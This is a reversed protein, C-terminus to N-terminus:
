GGILAASTFYRLLVQWTKEHAKNISCWIQWVGNVVRKAKFTSFLGGKKAFHYLYIECKQCGPSGVRGKQPHTGGPSDQGQTTASSLDHGQTTASSLDHGQITASSLDHFWTAFTLDHGQTTASSLDHGETTASSPDHGRTTASTLNM